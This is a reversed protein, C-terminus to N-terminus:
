HRHDSLHSENSSFSSRELKASEDSKQACAWFHCFRILSLGWEVWLLDIFLVRVKGGIIYFSYILTQKTQATAEM